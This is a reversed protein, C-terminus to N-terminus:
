LEPCYTSILLRTLQEGRKTILNLDDPSMAAFNTPYNVVQERKVLDAPIYPLRSDQQGLYPLIFAKIAGSQKHM